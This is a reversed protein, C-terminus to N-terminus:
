KRMKLMMARFPQVVATAGDGRWSWLNVGKAHEHGIRCLAQGSSAECALEQRARMNCLRVTGDRSHPCICHSQM